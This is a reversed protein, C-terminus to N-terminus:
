PTESEFKARMGVILAIPTGAEDKTEARYGAKVQTCAVDALKISLASGKPDSPQCFVAHGSPDVRVAIGVIQEKSGDPLKKVTFHLDVPPPPPSAGRAPIGNRTPHWWMLGGSYTDYIPVGNEDKAPKFRTRATLAACTKQDLEAFGSSRTISCRVTRGDPAVLLSFAVFGEERRDYAGRPYDADTIWVAASNAPTARTLAAALAMAFLGNM